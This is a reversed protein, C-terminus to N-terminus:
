YGHLAFPNLFQRRWFYRRDAETMQAEDAVEDWGTEIAEIQRDIIQRAESESLLYEPAAEVCGALRSLRFGDRGIAMAQATEGGVRPQPCIDYAPTLALDRGDWFASHNRAHDDTNGVLVNFVIRSFLERVAVEGELFRSRMQDALDPYTAYRAFMEGLELITLASVISKREDRGVVRDFREVLLVDKGLAQVFEVNAVNLGTRRALAMAAYEGKVIPYSDTSSSFKAILQRDDERLLAKPRAGGVSSGHLLAGDVEMSFPVGKEMREAAQLFEELSAGGGRAVYHTPSEQFDLAGIRNSGTELLYTLPSLQAPDAGRSGTGMLRRMIVSKGWADPGADAICGAMELNALPRIRGPQLPLEPEYLPVASPNSLYSRGYNFFLTAGDAEIRGAVVPEDAGPLWIWVYAESPGESTM